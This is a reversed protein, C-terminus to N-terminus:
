FTMTVEVAVGDPTSVESFEVAMDQGDPLEAVVDDDVIIKMGSQHAHVMRGVRDPNIQQKHCIKAVLDRVSRETLYVARYCGDQQAERPFRIYFCAVPTKNIRKWWIPVLRWSVLSPYVDRSRSTHPISMWRKM